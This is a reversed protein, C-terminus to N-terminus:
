FVDISNCVLLEVCVLMVYGGGIDLVVVRVEGEYENGDECFVWIFGGSWDYFVKFEFWEWLCCVLEFGVMLVVFIWWVLKVSGFFVVVDWVDKWFVLFEGDVLWSVKVLGGLFDELVKFCYDVLMVFGEFCLLIWSDFGILDLLLYVVGFVEVFLGMVVCLVKIGDVDDLGIM